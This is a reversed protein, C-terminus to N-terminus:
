PSVKSMAAGLVKGPGIEQLFVVVRIGEPVEGAKLKVPVEQDFKRGHRLQGVKTLSQLVAVHTLSQGGNEGRLVQSTAHDLAVALYIGASRKDSGGDIEVHASLKGPHSADNSVPGLHIPITPSAIAKQFVEKMQQSSDLHLVQTGDVIVQPTYVTDLGLAHDYDNQRQTVWASSYPDTWGEHNFYDVHESLVILQAGPVPQSDDLRQVFTDAPPCSSCGESTFLELLIPTPGASLIHRTQAFCEGALCVVLLLVYRPVPLNM